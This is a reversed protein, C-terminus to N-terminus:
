AGRLLTWRENTDCASLSRSLATMRTAITLCGEVHLDTGCCCQLKEGGEAHAAHNGGIKM